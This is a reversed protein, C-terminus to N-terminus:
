TQARPSAETASPPSRLKRTSSRMSSSPSPHLRTACRTTCSTSTPPCCSTSTPTSSPPSAFTPCRSRSVRTPCWWPHSQLTTQSCNSSAPTCCRSSACHHQCASLSRDAAAAAAASYHPTAAATDAFAASCTSANHNTTPRNACATDHVHLVRWGISPVANCCDQARTSHRVEFTVNKAKRTDLVLTDRDFYVNASLYERKISSTGYWGDQLSVLVAAHCCQHCTTCRCLTTLFGEANRASVLGTEFAAELAQVPNRPYTLTLDRM